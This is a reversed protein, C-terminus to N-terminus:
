WRSRLRGTLYGGLGSASWQVVILWIATMVTFTTVSVGSGSWPSISAFGLGAGLALLILSTAAAVVTGAIIAPWSVGSSYTGETSTASMGPAASVIPADMHIDM